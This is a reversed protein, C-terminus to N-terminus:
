WLAASNQDQCRGTFKRALDSVIDAGMAPVNAMGDSQHDATGTGAWLNLRHCAANIEENRGRAAQHVVHFGAHKAEVINFHYREVFRILHQVHAEQGRDSV